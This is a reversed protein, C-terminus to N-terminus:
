PTAKREVTLHCGLKELYRRENFSGMVVGVIFVVVLIAIWERDRM